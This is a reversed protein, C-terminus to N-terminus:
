NNPSSMDFTYTVDVTETNGLQVSSTVIAAFAIANSTADDCDTYDAAGNDYDSKEKKM